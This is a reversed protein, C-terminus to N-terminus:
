IEWLSLKVSLLSALVCVCVCMSLIAYNHGVSYIIRSNCLRQILRETGCKASQIPFDARNINLRASAFNQHKSSYKQHSWPEM